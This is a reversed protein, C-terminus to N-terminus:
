ALAGAALGKEGPTLFPSLLDAVRGAADGKGLGRINAALAEIRDRRRTLDLLAQALSGLDKEEIMVAANLAALTEANKRQHDDASARLPVLIAAKGAVALEALSTAGARCLIIDAEAFARPMDDIFPVVRAPRRLARYAAEVRSHAEPGTQHVIELEADPPIDGLAAVLADSLVRSGQSGGFCLLRVPGERRLPTVGVFGRRVPNGTLRARDGFFAMTTEFACAAFTVFPRLLRNTFGPIANPELLVTPVGLRNAAFMVPGSAYGGIGLVARPGTSRLLAFARVMGWPLAVWGRLKAALSAVNLPRVPLLHLVFGSRPVIRTELGSGFLSGVFEVRLGPHRARLEDGVAIGPFIHGGTGGAAILVLSHDTPM